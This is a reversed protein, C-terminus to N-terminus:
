EGCDCKGEKTASVIMATLPELVETTFMKVIEHAIYEDTDLTRRASLIKVTEIYIDKSM